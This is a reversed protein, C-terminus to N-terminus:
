ATAARSRLIDLLHRLQTRELGSIPSFEVAIGTSWESRSMPDTITDVVRARLTLVPALDDARLILVVREDPAPADNAHFFCGGLSIDGILCPQHEGARRIWRGELSAVLRPYKRRDPQGRSEDPETPRGRRGSIRAIKRASM